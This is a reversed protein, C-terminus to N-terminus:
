NSVSLDFQVMITLYSVVGTMIIFLVNWNLEFIECGPALELMRMQLISIECFKKLKKDKLTKTRNIQNWLMHGGHKLITSTKIVLVYMMFNSLMYTFGSFLTLFHPLDSRTFFAEYASFAVIICHLFFEALGVLITYSFFNNCLVVIDYINSYMKMVIKLERTTTKTLNKIAKRVNSIRSNLALLVIMFTLSFIANVDFSIMFFPNTILVVQKINFIVFPFLGITAVIGYIILLSILIWMSFKLDRKYDRIIGLTVLQFYFNLSIQFFFKFNQVFRVTLWLWGSWLILHM